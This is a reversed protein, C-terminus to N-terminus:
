QSGIHEVCTGPTNQANEPPTKRRRHTKRMKGPTNQALPTKRMKGPTNQRQLRTKRM